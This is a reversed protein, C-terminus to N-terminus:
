ELVEIDHGDEWLSGDVIFKKLDAFDKVLADSSFTKITAIVADVDASPPLYFTIAIYDPLVDCSDIEFGSAQACDYLIKELRDIVVQLQLVQESVPGFELLYLLNRQQNNKFTQNM